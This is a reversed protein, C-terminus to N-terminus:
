TPMGARGIRETWALGACQLVLALTACAGGPVTHLVIRLPDAGLGFGLLFGLLPLAALLRATTRASALQAAARDTSRRHARLEAELTDLLEALPVGVDNLRWVAALREFIGTLGPYRVASLAAVLDAGSVSQGTVTRLSRRAPEDVVPEITTVAAALAQAPTRGARLDDALGAVADLGALQARTRAQAAHRRFLGRAAGGCYLAGALGAIPGGAVVGALGATLAVVAPVSRHHALGSWVAAASSRRIGFPGSDGGASVTRLRRRVDGGPVAMLLGAAAVAAAAVWSM